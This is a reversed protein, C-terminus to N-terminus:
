SPLRDAFANIGMTFTSDPKSNHEEFKILNSEFIALRKLYEEVTSYDKDFDVIFRMFKKESEAMQGSRSTFLTSASVVGVVIVVLAAVGVPRHM